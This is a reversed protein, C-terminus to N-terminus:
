TIRVNGAKNFIEQYKSKLDPQLIGVHGSLSLSYEAVPWLAPNLWKCGVCKLKGLIGNKIGIRLWIFGSCVIRAQGKLTWKLIVRGDVDPHRTDKLAKLKEWFARYAIRAQRTYWM